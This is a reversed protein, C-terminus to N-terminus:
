EPSDPGHCGICKAEFISRIHKRYTVEESFSLPASVFILTLTALAIAAKMDVKKKQYQIEIDINYVPDESKDLYRIKQLGSLNPIHGAGWPAPPLICTSPASFPM